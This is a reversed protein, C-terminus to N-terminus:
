IQLAWIACRTVSQSLNAVSLAPRLTSAQKPAWRPEQGMMVPDELSMIAKETVQLLRWANRHAEPFAERTSCKQWNSISSLSRCHRDRLYLCATSLDNMPM